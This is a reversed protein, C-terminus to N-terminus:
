KLVEDPFEYAEIKEVTDLGETADRLQQRYTKMEDSMTLDSGSTWDTKALLENRTIRFSNLARNFKGSEWSAEESDRATEEEATFEIPEGDVLKIRAM